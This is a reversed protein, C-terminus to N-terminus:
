QTRTLTVAGTVANISITRNTTQPLNQHTITILPNNNTAGQITGNNAFYLHFLRNVGGNFSVRTTGAVAPNGTSVNTLQIGLRPDPTITRFRVGTRFAEVASANLSPSVATASNTVTSDAASVKSKTEEIMGILQQTFNDVTQQALYRQTFPVGLALLVAIIGIVVMTEILTFGKIHTRM